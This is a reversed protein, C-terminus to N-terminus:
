PLFDRSSVFFILFSFLVFCFQKIEKTLKKRGVFFNADRTADVDVKM